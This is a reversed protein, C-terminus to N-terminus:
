FGPDEGAPGQSSPFILHLIEQYIQVPYPVFRIRSLAQEQGASEVIFEAYRFMRGVATEHMRMDTVKTLPMMGVDRDFVGSVLMLRNETVVFYRRWWNVIKWGQWVLLVFWLFWIVKHLGTSGTIGILIGVGILGGVILLAPVIIAMPHMRLRIVVHESPMLYADVMGPTKRVTILRDYVLGRYRRGPCIKFYNRVYVIVCM